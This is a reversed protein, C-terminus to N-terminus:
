DLQRIEVRPSLEKLSEQILRNQFLTGFDEVEDALEEEQEKEEQQRQKAALYQEKIKSRLSM